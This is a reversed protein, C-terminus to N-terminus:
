RRGGGRRLVLRTWTTQSTRGRGSRSSTSNRYWGRRGSRWSSSRAWQRDIACSGALCPRSQGPIPVYACPPHRSAPASVPPPPVPELAILPVPVPVSSASEAILSCNTPTISLLQRRPSFCLMRENGLDGPSFIANRFPWQHERQRTSIQRPCCQCRAPFNCM